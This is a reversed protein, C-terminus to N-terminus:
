DIRNGLDPRLSILDGSVSEKSQLTLAAAKQAFMIAEEISGGRRVSHAILAGLFTDGVGNVSVIEDGGLVVAPKFHRMFLGGVQSNPDDGKTRAIVYQNLNPQTLRSDHKHLLKTLIVGDAGLKTIITPMFPLLQISMQPIGQQVFAAPVAKNIRNGIGSMPIGLADIVSFWDASELLGSARATTHIASLELANPTTLDLIHNPFTPLPVHVDSSPSISDPAILVRSSKATSVPEFATLAGGKKAKSLFSRLIDNSWNADAVVWKPKKEQVFYPWKSKFLNASSELISMDAMAVVLDKKTDNVAVYQATGVAGDNKAEFIGDTRMNSSELYALAGKGAFDDGVISLLQVNAGLLHAARAVNHGVGGLTQTIKAPNSTHMVPTQSTDSQYDCSYDVALAGAVIIDPDSSSSEIMADDGVLTSQLELPKTSDSKPQPLFSSPDEGTHGEQSLVSLEKAIFAGRIVNSAILARNSTVSRGESLEKIRNLIFPTNDRGSAGSLSAEQISQNIFATMDAMSIEL